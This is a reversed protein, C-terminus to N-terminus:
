AEEGQPLSGPAPSISEAYQPTGLAFGGAVEHLVGTVYSSADGAFYLVANAVDEPTGMRGMPVHSLFSLLFSEPMNRLAADTAILGPLVANCRINDRAYQLAINKTLTNVAAKSLTYALRSVDPVLSGISSINVISGGGSDKMFPVARRCSLYVSQINARVIRFFAEADGELLNRDRAPDTSGYNNVLIDLRGARRAATDILRPYDEARTADFRLFFARGGQRRMAAVAEEGEKDNRAAVFVTAGHRVLIRACALGIGRSGATVIAARGNLDTMNKEKQQPSLAYFAGNEAHCPRPLAAM